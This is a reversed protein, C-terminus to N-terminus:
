RVIRALLRRRQKEIWISLAILVIGGLIFALSRDLLRLSWSFYQIVIVLAASGVGINVLAPRGAEMGAWVLWLALLFVVVVFLFYASGAGAWGSRGLLLSGFSVGAMAVMLMRNPTSAFRGNWMALGALAGCAAIIALQKSTFDLRFLHILVDDDITGSVLPVASLLVGWVLWTGTAFRWDPRREALLAASVLGLGLLPFLPLLGYSSFLAEIQDDNFWAKGGGFWALALLALPIALWAHARSGLAYGMALAALLWLFPGQWFTLSFNFIQGVLFIFAGVTLTALFWLSRAVREYGLRGSVLAGGAAVAYACALTAIRVAPSMGSWHSAVFLIMGLGVLVAGFLSVIKVMRSSGRDPAQEALYRSLQEAKARDILGAQEWLDLAESAKLDTM